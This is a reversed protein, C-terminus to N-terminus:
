YEVIADSFKSEIIIKGSGSMVEGIIDAPLSKIASLCKQVQNKRVSLIFGIGCNFTKYMEEDLVGRRSLEFFIKQPRLKHLRYIKVDLNEDLLDKLKTYAGGTIHMIGGIDFKEALKLIQLLYIFTPKIFDPRFENKFVKRIKSFGNSHLGNSAIGILIDGRRFKNAVPKKVFGLMSISIELGSADDHIATEGGTIAIKQKRCIAALESIIQLIARQDDRPLIMHDIIAYPIARVIALDNLNMAMADIVANKFSKKQWHYIGKTGIGDSHHYEPYDFKKNVLSNKVSIYPTKWTKQIEEIIKKKYPKTPDYL